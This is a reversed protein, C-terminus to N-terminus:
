LLSSSGTKSSVQRVKDFQKNKKLHFIKEKKHHGKREKSFVLLLHAVSVKVNLSYYVKTRGGGVQRICDMLFKTKICMQM